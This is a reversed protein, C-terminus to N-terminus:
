GELFSTANLELVVRTQPLKLGLTALKATPNPGLDITVISM